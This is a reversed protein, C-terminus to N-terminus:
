GPKMTSALTELVATFDPPLPSTTRVRQGGLPHVFGLTAAHLLLRPSPLPVHGARLYDRVYVREGVM